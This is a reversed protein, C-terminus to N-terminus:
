HFLSPSTIKRTSAFEPRSSLYKAGNMASVPSQLTIPAAWPISVGLVWASPELAISKINHVGTTIGAVQRLPM